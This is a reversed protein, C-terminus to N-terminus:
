IVLESCLTCPEIEKTSHVPKANGVQKHTSAIQQINSRTIYLVLSGRPISNWCSAFGGGTLVFSINTPIITAPVM